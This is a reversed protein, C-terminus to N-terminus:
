ESDFSRTISSSVLIPYNDSVRLMKRPVTVADFTQLLFKKWPYMNNTHININIVSLFNYGFVGKQQM